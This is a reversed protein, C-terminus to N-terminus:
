NGGGLVVQIYEAPVLLQNAAEQALQFAPDPLLGLAVILLTLTIVPTLQLKWNLPEVQPTPNEKIAPKWFVQNWIKIMSYLTLLSMIVAIGIM